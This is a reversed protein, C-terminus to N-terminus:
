MNVLTRENVIHELRKTIFEILNHTQIKLMEKTNKAKEQLEKKNEINSNSLLRQVETIAALLVNCIKRQYEYRPIILKAEIANLESMLKHKNEKTCFNDRIYLLEGSNHLHIVDKTFQRLLSEKKPWLSVEKYDYLGVRRMITHDSNYIKNDLEKAFLARALVNAIFTNNNTTTESILNDNLNAATDISIFHKPKEEEEKLKTTLEPIDYIQSLVMDFNLREKGQKGRRTTVVKHFVVNPNVSDPGMIFSLCGKTGPPFTKDKVTDKAIFLSGPSLITHPILSMKKNM